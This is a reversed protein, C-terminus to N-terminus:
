DSFIKFTIVEDTEVPFETEQSIDIIFCKPCNVSPPPAKRRCFFISQGDQLIPHSGRKISVTQNIAILQSTGATGRFRNPDASQSM